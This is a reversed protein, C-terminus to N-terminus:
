PSKITLEQRLFDAGVILTIDIDVLRPDAETIVQSHPIGLSDAVAFALEPKGTRDYVSSVDYRFHKANRVERVDFGKSRLAPTITRAIGKIGCGNLVQMRIPTQNLRERAQDGIITTGQTPSAMQAANGSNALNSSGQGVPEKATQSILKRNQETNSFGSSVSPMPGTAPQPAWHLLLATLAILFTLLQATREWSAPESPRLKSSVATRQHLHFRRAL